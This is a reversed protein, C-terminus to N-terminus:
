GARGARCLGPQYVSPATKAHYLELTDTHFGHDNCVLINVKLQGEITNALWVACVIFGVALTSCSKKIVSKAAFTMLLLPHYLPPPYHHCRLNMPNGSDGAASVRKEVKETQAQPAAVPAVSTTKNEKPPQPTPKPTPAPERWSAKRLVTSLRERAAAKSEAEVAYGNADMNHPFRVRFCEFGQNQLDAALLSAAKRARSTATM